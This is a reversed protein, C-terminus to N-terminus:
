RIAIAAMHGCYQAWVATFRTRECALKRTDCFFYLEIEERNRGESIFDNSLFVRAISKAENGKSTARGLLPRLVGIMMLMMMM